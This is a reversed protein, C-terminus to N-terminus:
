RGPVIPSHDNEFDATLGFCFSCGFTEDSQAGGFSFVSVSGPCPSTRRGGSGFVNAPSRRRFVASDASLVPVRGSSKAGLGGRLQQSSVGRRRCGVGLRRERRTPIGPGSEVQRRPAFDAASPNRVTVCRTPIARRFQHHRPLSFRNAATSGM